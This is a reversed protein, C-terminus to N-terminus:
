LLPDGSSLFDSSAYAAGQHPVSHNHTRLHCPHCARLQSLSVHPDWSTWKAWILFYCPQLFSFMQCPTNSCCVRVWGRQNLLSVRIYLLSWSHLASSVLSSQEWETHIMLQHHCHSWAPNQERPWLAALQHSVMLSSLFHVQRTIQKSKYKMSCKFYNVKDRLNINCKKSACRSYSTHYWNGTSKRISETYDHIPLHKGTFANSTASSEEGPLTVQPKSNYHSFTFSIQSKKKKNVKGMWIFHISM